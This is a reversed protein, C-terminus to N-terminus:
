ALLTGIEQCATHRRISATTPYFNNLFVTASNIFTGDGALTISASGYSGNDRNAEFVNVCNVVGAPCTTGWQTDLRFSANWDGTVAIVPWAPGTHDAIHVKTRIGGGKHPWRYGLYHRAGAPAIGSFAFVLVLCLAITARQSRHRVGGTGVRM